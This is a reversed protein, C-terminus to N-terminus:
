LIRSNNDDGFLAITNTDPKIGGAGALVLGDIQLHQQRVVAPRATQVATIQMLAEQEIIIEGLPESGAGIGIARVSQQVAM